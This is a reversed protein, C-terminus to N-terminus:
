VIVDSVLDTGLDDYSALRVESVAIRVVNGQVVQGSGNCRQVVQDIARNLDLSGVTGGLDETESRLLLSFEHLNVLTLCLKLKGETLIHHM